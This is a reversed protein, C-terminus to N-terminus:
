QNCCRNASWLGITACWWDLGKTGCDRCTPLQRHIIVTFTGVCTRRRSAHMEARGDFFKGFRLETKGRRFARPLFVSLSFFLFGSVVRCRVAMPSTKWGPLAPVALVRTLGPIRPNQSEPIVAQDGSVALRSPAPAPGSAPRPRDQSTSLFDPVSDDARRRDHAKTLESPVSAPRLLVKLVLLLYGPSPIDTRRTPYM